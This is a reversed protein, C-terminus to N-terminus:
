NPVITSDPSAKALYQNLYELMKQPTRVKLVQLEDIGILYNLIKEICYEQTSCGIGSGATIAEYSYCDGTGGTYVPHLPRLLRLRFLSGNPQEDVSLSRLEECAEKEAAIRLGHNEQDIDVGTMDIYKYRKENANLDHWDECAGKEAAIRFGHNINALVQDIDTFTMDKYIQGNRKSKKQNALIQADIKLSQLNEPSLNEITRLKYCHSVNIERLSHRGSISFHDLTSVKSADIKTLRSADEIQLWRVGGQITIVELAPLNRCILWQVEERQGYEAARGDIHLERLNPLNEILAYDIGVWRCPLRIVEVDASGTFIIDPQAEYSEGSRMNRYREIMEQVALNLSVQILRIKRYDLIKPYTGILKGDKAIRFRRAAKAVQQVPDEALIKCLEAPLRINKAVIFRDRENGHEVAWKFLRQPCEPKRLISTIVNEPLGKVLDAISITSDNIVPNKYFDKPFQSALRVFLDPPINTHLLILKQLRIDPNMALAVLLEGSANPHKALLRDISDDLGVLKMLENAPAAQNKALKLQTKDGTAIRVSGDKGKSPQNLM